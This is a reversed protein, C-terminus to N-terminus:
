LELALLRCVDTRWAGFWGRAFALFFRTAFTAFFFHYMAPVHSDFEERDRM